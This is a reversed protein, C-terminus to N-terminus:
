GAQSASEANEPEPKITVNTGLTIKFSLIRDRVKGRTIGLIAAAKSQNGNAAKLVCTFLKREVFELVEAYLDDTGSALREEIFRGVDCEALEPTKFNSHAATITPGNPPQCAPEAPNSAIPHEPLEGRIPAPLFEPVIVPSSAKLVAQQLVSQLERINGPWSYNQLLELAEPSIGEIDAKDLENRFRALFYELLIPIDSARERLPPLHITVVNLRYFLDSRFREDAVMEELPRNTAAIIRVDTSITENGGVREFRQEQLLRLIKGQVLPSMDGVEDLLLTGGDCQEFRGARRRDASTFAGREHGFLESELLADPLAACNVAAFPRESRDSFQWLARAVLEKGTGSEGRILVTVSQKAVRGIEKFVELMQPSRGVFLESTDGPQQLDHIGVATPADGLRRSDLARTVVDVLREANLPKVLYDSAGLQMAEIVSQGDADATIVIVPLRRDIERIRQFVKPGSAQLLLIDLLVVDPRLLECQQLGETGTSASEVSIGLKELLRSVILVSSRDDDIVLVTSRLQYGGKSILRRRIEFM